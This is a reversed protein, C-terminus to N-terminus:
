ARKEGATAALEGEGRWNRFVRMQEEEASLSAATNETQLLGSSRLLESRAVAILDQASKPKLMDSSAPAAAASPTKAVNSYLRFGRLATMRALPAPM